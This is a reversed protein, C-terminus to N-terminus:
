AYDTDVSRTFESIGILLLFKRKLSLHEHGGPLWCYLSAAEPNATPNLPHTEAPKHFM